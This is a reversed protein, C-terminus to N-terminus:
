PPLAVANFATVWSDADPQRFNGFHHAEIIVFSGQFVAKNRSPANPFASNQTTLVYPTAVGKDPFKILSGITLDSRMVAKFNVTAPDIWTPQGILDVFDLKTPTRETKSDFAYITNGVITILVGSYTDGFKQAGLSASIRQIYDAFTALRTYHGHEASSLTLESINVSAKMGYKGFAQTFTQFLASSLSTNAPWSWSIDQDDQSAPPYCILELTQNTGQWNGFAQFITGQLVLGAQAPKALPLGKQMGVSVKINQGALDAAQGIMPLGVGWIKLFGAGQPQNFPISPIDLEVNLANPNTKGNTFSTFTSGGASKVFAEGTATPKWVKGSSDSVAIDYYRM